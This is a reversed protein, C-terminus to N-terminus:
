TSRILTVGAMLSIEQLDLEYQVDLQHVANELEPFKNIIAMGNSINNQDYIMANIQSFLESDYVNLMSKIFESLIARPNEFDWIVFQRDPAATTIRRILAAWSFDGNFIAATKKEDSIRPLSGIYDVPSSITLHVIVEHERFLESFKEVRSPAQPMPILKLIDDPRGLAPTQSIAVIEYASLHDIFARANEMHYSNITTLEEKSNIFPQINQLFDERPLVHLLPDFNMFHNKSVSSLLDPILGPFGLHCNFLM